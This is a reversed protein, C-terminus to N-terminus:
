QKGGGETPTLPALPAYLGTFSPNKFMYPLGPTTTKLMEVKKYINSYGRYEVVAKEGFGERSREFYYVEGFEHAIVDKYSGDIMPQIEVTGENEKEYTKVGSLAVVHAPLDKMQEVLESWTSKILGYGDFGPKDKAPNKRLVDRVIYYLMWESMKHVSDVVFTEVDSFVEGPAFPGTKEVYSQFVDHIMTAVDDGREFPIRHTYIRDPHSASLVRMNKDFDLFLWNPFSGAFTTKGTGAKGLVLVKKFRIGDPQNASEDLRRLWSPQKKSGLAPAPISSSKSNLKNM